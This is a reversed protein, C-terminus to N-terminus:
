EAKPVSKHAQERQRVVEQLVPFLVEAMIQHGKPNPHLQDTTWTGVDTGAKGADIWHRYHDVLPLKLEAALDRTRQCYEALLRDPNEGIGNPTPKPGYSNETMLIVAINQQQLREVLQRSFQSFQEASLRPQEKGKDIYSDNAGYM